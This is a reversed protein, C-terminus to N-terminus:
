PQFVAGIPCGPLPAPNSSCQLVTRPASTAARADVVFLPRADLTPSGGICSLFSGDESWASDAWVLPIDLTRKQPPESDFLEFLYFPVPEVAYSDYGHLSLHRGDPSFAQNSGVFAAALLHAPEEEGIRSLWHEITEPLFLQNPAREGTEVYLWRGRPDQAVSRVESFDGPVLQEAFDTAGIVAVSIQGARVLVLRNGILPLATSFKTHLMATTEGVQSLSVGSVAYLAYTALEPDDPSPRVAVAVSFDDSFTLPDQPLENTEGTKLDVLLKPADAAARAVIAREAGSSQREITADSLGILQPNTPTGANWSIRSYEGAGLAYVLSNADVWTFRDAPEVSLPSSVQATSTDFYTLLAPDAGLRGCALKSGDPAWSCPSQYSNTLLFKREPAVVTTDVIYWDVEAMSRFSNYILWRGDPSFAMGHASQNEIRVLEAEPEHLDALTLLTQTSASSVATQAALWRARSIALRYDASNVTGVADQVQVAFDFEGVDGPTGQLRGDSDLEIGPPLVGSLLEFSYPEVGDHAGFQARYGRNLRGPPLSSPSIGLRPGADEGAQGATASGDGATAMGHGAQATGAVQGAATGGAEPGGASSGGGTQEREDGLVYAGECGVAAVLVVWLLPRVALMGKPTTQHARPTM